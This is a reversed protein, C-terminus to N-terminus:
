LIICTYVPIEHQRGSTEWVSHITELRINNVLQLFTLTEDNKDTDIEININTDIHVHIDTNIDVNIYIHRNNHM